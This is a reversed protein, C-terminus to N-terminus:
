GLNSTESRKEVQDQPLGRRRVFGRRVLVGTVALAGVVFLITVWGAGPKGPESASAPSPEPTAAGILGAPQLIGLKTLAAPVRQTADLLRWGPRVVWRPYGGPGHFTSRSRVLAVPGSEAIPYVYETLLAKAGPQDPIPGEQFTKRALHYITVTFSSNLGHSPPALLIEAGPTARLWAVVRGVDCVHATGGAGNEERTVSIWYPCENDALAPVPGSAFALGLFLVVCAAASRM